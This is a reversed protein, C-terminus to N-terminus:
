VESHSGRRKSIQNEGPLKWLLGSNVANVGTKKGALLARKTFWELLHGDEPDVPRTWVDGYCHETM